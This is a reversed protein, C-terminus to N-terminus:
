PSIGGEDRNQGTTKLALLSDVLYILDIVNHTAIPFFAGQTAESVSAALQKNNSTVVLAVQSARPSLSLRECSLAVADVTERPCALVLDPTHQIFAAEAEDPSVAVLVAGHVSMVRSQTHVFAGSGIVLITKGNLNLYM